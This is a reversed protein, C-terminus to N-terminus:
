QNSSLRMYGLVVGNVDFVPVSKGWIPTTLSNAYLPVKLLQPPFLKPQAGYQTHTGILLIVGAIDLRRTTSSQAKICTAIELKTANQNLNFHHILSFWDGDTGRIKTTINTGPTQDYSIVHDTASSSVGDSHSLNVKVDGADNYPPRCIAVITMAEINRGLTWLKAGPNSKPFFQGMDQVIGYLGNVSPNSVAISVASNYFLTEQGGDSGTRQVLDMTGSGSKVARWAYAFSTGDAINTSGGTWCSFDGNVLMNTHLQPSSISNCEIHGNSMVIGAGGDKLTGPLKNGSSDILQIQGDNIDSKRVNLWTNNKTTFIIPNNNGYDTELYVNGITNGGQDSRFLIGWENSPNSFPNYGSLFDQVGLFDIMNNDAGIFTIGQNARWGYIRGIKCCRMGNGSAGDGLIGQTRFGRNVDFYSLNDFECYYIGQTAATTISFDYATINRNAIDIKSPNSIHDRVHINKTRKYVMGYPCALATVGNQAQTADITFNEFVSPCHLSNGDSNPTGLNLFIGTVNPGIILTPGQGNADSGISSSTPEGIVDVYQLCFSDDILYKGDAVKLKVKQAEAAAKADAFAQTWDDTGNTRSLGPGYDHLYVDSM